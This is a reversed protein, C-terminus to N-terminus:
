TDAAGRLLPAIVGPRTYHVCRLIADHAPLTRCM